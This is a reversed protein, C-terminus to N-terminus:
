FNARRPNPEVFSILRTGGGVRVYIRGKTSVLPYQVDRVSIKISVGGHLIVGGFTKVDNTWINWVVYIPQIIWARPITTSAHTIVLWIQIHKFSDM